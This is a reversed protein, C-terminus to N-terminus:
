YVKLWESCTHALEARLLNYADSSAGIFLGCARCYSEIVIPRRQNPLREFNSPLEPEAM